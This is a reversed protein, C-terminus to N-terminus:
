KHSLYIASQRVTLIAGPLPINKRAGKKEKEPDAGPIQTWQIHNGCAAHLGVLFSSNPYDLVSPFLGLPIVIRDQDDPLATAQFKATTSVTASDYWGSAKWNFSKYSVAALTFKHLASSTPRHDSPGNTRLGM